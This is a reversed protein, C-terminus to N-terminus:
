RASAPTLAQMILSAAEDAICTGTDIVVCPRPLPPYSLAGSDRLERWLQRSALKGFAARSPDDLRREIEADDCAIEVFVVKGGAGEVTKVVAEPFGPRVTREPAFTFILSRGHRAAERFVSLWIEERLAVFPESGFAFTSLLADVVLHNHFLGYGTRAALARAITLKGSAPPGHLFVLEM